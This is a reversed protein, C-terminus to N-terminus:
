QLGLDDAATLAGCAAQQALRAEGVDLGEVLDIPLREPAHRFWFDQCQCHTM